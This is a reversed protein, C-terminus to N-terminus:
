RRLNSMRRAREAAEARSNVGLKRYIVRLHFKVTNVSVYLEDAIERVTLRSPLYRLVDRERETLPEVLEPDDAIVRNATGVTSRRLRDLWPAPARWAALEVLEMVEAGESAITQLLGEGSAREVATSAYKMAEERDTVARARLLALVVEHRVCRPRAADLATLAAPRDGAFLDVRAQSIPGWFSDDVTGARRRAGAHDGDALALATGVRNLWGRMDAGLSEAELLAEAQGFVDKAAAFDGADVHLQALECMAIVRHCLM